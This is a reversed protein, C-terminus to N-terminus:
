KDFCVIHSYTRFRQLKDKGTKQKVIKSAEDFCFLAENSIISGPQLSAHDTFTDRVWEHCLLGSSENGTIRCIGKIDGYKLGNAGIKYIIECTHM